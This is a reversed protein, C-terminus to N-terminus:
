QKNEVGGCHDYIARCIVGAMVKAKGQEGKPSETFMHVVDERGSPRDFARFKDESIINQFADLLSVHHEVQRDSDITKIVSKNQVKVILNSSCIEEYIDIQQDFDNKM